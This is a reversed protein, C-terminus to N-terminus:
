MLSDLDDTSPSDQLVWRGKRENDIGAESHCPHGKCGVEGNLRFLKKPTAQRDTKSGSPFLRRTVRMLLQDAQNPNCERSSPHVHSLGCEQLFGPPFEVSSRSTTALRSRVGQPEGGSPAPASVVSPGYVIPSRNTSGEVPSGIASPVLTKSM